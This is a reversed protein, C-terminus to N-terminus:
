HMFVCDFVFNGATHHSTIDINKCVNKYVFSPEDGEVFFIKICFSKEERAKNAKTTQRCLICYMHETLDWIHREDFFNKIRM